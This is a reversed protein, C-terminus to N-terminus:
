CLHHSPWNKMRDQHSDALFVKHMNEGAPLHFANTHTHTHHEGIVKIHEPRREEAEPRM